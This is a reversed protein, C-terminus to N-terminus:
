ASRIANDIASMMRLDTTTSGRRVRRKRNAESSESPVVSSPVESDVASTTFDSPAAGDFNALSIVTGGRGVPPAQQWFFKEKTDVGMLQPRSPVVGRLDSIANRIDKVRNNMSVV